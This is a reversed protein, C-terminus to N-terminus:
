LSNLFNVLDTREQHTFGIGFRTDYFDVAEGVDKASGNHFYPARAAIGRLIPGKFRGIDAFLGTVMARGPDMIQVTQGATCHGAAVGVSTCVFTYLPMDATRRNPDGLGINLPVPVSHNGANPQDHCTGCTGQFSAPLGLANNLGGVGSITIPKTNFLKQGRAISARAENAGGHHGCWDRDHDDYNYGRLDNWADFIDFIVNTFPEHTRFDGFNDNMGFYAPTEAVLDPGGQAGRATLDGARDDSIQAFYLTDEFDVVARQEELTLGPIAAQAHGLTANLAQTTLDFDISRFCKPAFPASVCNDDPHPPTSTDVATERGDWMVTSLMFLNASPLPRRFMSIDDKNAYHYPDDVSQLAFEANAPIPLGIRILGKNLLMSYATRRKQKTSVDADPRNSGDNTRFIPDLGNTEEFRQQIHSPIVTWGDAPQHCSGCSRGNTGLSQFFPGSLDVSGTSSFTAAYGSPNRFPQDQRLRDTHRAVEETTQNDNNTDDTCATVGGLVVALTWWKTM